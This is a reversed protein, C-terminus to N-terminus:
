RRKVMDVVVLVAPLVGAALAPAPFFAAPLVGVAAVPYPIWEAVTRRHPRLHVARVTILFVAAPVTVAVGAAM